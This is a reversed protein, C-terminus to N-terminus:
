TDILDLCAVPAAIHTDPDDARRLTQPLCAQLSEWSEFPDWPPTSWSGVLPADNFHIQWRLESDHKAAYVSSHVYAVDTADVIVLNGSDEFLSYAEAKMMPAGAFLTSILQEISEPVAAEVLASVLRSQKYWYPAFRLWLSQLISSTDFIVFRSILHLCHIVIMSRAFTHKQHKDAITHIVTLIARVAFGRSMTDAATFADGLTLVNTLCLRYSKSHVVALLSQCQERLSLSNQQIQGLGHIWLPPIISDTRLSFPMQYAASYSDHLVDLDLGEVQSFTGLSDILLAALGDMRQLSAARSAQVIQLRTQIEISKMELDSNISEQDEASSVAHKLRQQVGDLEGRLSQLSKTLGATKSVHEERDATM